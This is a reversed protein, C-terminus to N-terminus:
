PSRLLLIVVSLGILLFLTALGILIGLSRRKKEQETLPRIDDKNKQELAAGIGIALDELALGIAVGFMIGLSIGISVWYGQPRKGEDRSMDM